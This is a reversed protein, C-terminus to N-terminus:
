GAPGTSRVLSSSSPSSEQIRVVVDAFDRAARAGQHHARVDAARAVADLRFRPELLGLPERQRDAQDHGFGEHQRQTLHARRRQEALTLDFADGGFALELIGLQDDDVSREGADLLAVQLFLELALHDVAGPQDELDEAFARGRGFSPQLYLQGMEVILLAAQHATPSVEFALPAAEAEEAARAFGLDFGVPTHDAVAHRPQPAFQLLHPAGPGEMALAAPPRRPRHDSEDAVGVGALRCQEVPQGASAYQRFVQQEGREIRGHPRDRQRTDVLRDKGVGDAEDGIQRGLEDGRKAGRQFFHGLGVDDQVHAVDGIGVARRLFTLHQM